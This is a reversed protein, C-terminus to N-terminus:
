MSLFYNLIQPSNLNSVGNGFTRFMNRDLKSEKVQFSFFSFFFFFPYYIKNFFNKSLSDLYNVCVYM